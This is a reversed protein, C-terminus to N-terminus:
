EEISVGLNSALEGENDESGFVKDYAQQFDKESRREIAKIFEANINFKPFINKEVETITTILQQSSIDGLGSEPSIGAAYKKFVQATLNAFPQALTDKSEDSAIKEAMVKLIAADSSEHIAENNKYAAIRTQAVASLIESASGNSFQGAFSAIMELNIPSNVQAEAKLTDFISESLQSDPSAKISEIVDTGTLAKTAWYKVAINESDMMEIALESMKPDDLSGIMVALNLKMAKIFTEDSWTEVIKMSSVINREVSELFQEKYKSKGEKPKRVLIDERRKVSDEITPAELMEKFIENIFSDIVALDDNTFTTKKRVEDIERTSAAFSIGSLTIIAIALFCKVNKSFM